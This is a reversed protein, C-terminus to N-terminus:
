EEVVSQLWPEQEKSPSFSSTKYTTLSHNWMNMTRNNKTEKNSVHSTIFVRKGMSNRSLLKLLHTFLHTLQHLSHLLKLLGNLLLTPFRWRMIILIVIVM